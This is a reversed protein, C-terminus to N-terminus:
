AIANDIASGIQKYIPLNSHPDAVKGIAPDLVTAGNQKFKDYYKNVTAETINKNNGWGWSGKVVYYKAEPFATKLASFLGKIDENPNFGGNTGINIVVSGVDSSPPYKAVANKLWSLSQGAKWLNAESGTEGLKVIKKSNKAIFPTQSDGIIINKKTKNIVPQSEDAKGKQKTKEYYVLGAVALVLIAGSIYYANKTFWNEKGM